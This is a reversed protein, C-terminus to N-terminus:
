RGLDHEHVRLEGDNAEQGENNVQHPRQGLRDADDSHSCPAERHPKRQKVDQDQHGAGGVRELSQEQSFPYLGIQAGSSRVVEQQIETPKQERRREGGHDAREQGGGELPDEALRHRVELRVTRNRSQEKVSEGSAAQSM